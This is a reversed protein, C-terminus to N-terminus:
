NREEEERHAIYENACILGETNRPYDKNFFFALRLFYPIDYVSSKEDM